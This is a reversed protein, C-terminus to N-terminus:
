RNVASEDFPVGDYVDQRLWLIVTQSAHPIGRTRRQLWWPLFDFGIMSQPTWSRSIVFSQGVYSGGLEPLRELQPLLVIRDTRADDPDTIFRTNEFDRLLWAVVGTESTLMTIPIEPFGMSERQAVDQLTERLLNVESDTAQVHWFETPNGANHVSLNWGSGIGTLVAFLLVGLAGARATIGQGWISAALFFGVLIFLVTIFLWILSIRFNLFPTELIRAMVQDLGGGPVTLFARGIVQLHIALMTLLGLMVAALIWKAWRDRRYQWWSPADEEDLLEYIGPLDDKELLEVAVWSALAALPMTLWLAHDPGGGAFIFVALISLVVWGILFREVHDIADRRILLIVAALAFVWIFPEYIISTALPFLAPTGPASETLGRITRGLLESVASLGAPYLMFGTSVIVVVGAAAFLGTQLPWAQLRNRIGALFESGPMDLRDPATLAEWYLAIAGAVLFIFGLVPGGPESLLVMGIFFMTAQIAASAQGKEWWRWLSWLGLVALLMTWVVPSDFRSTAILVPSFALLASMIFARIQGILGRFLIPSLSLLVGGFAVWIRAALESGGAMTFSINHLWFGLPSQPIIISGAVDPHIVRWSALAERAETETLPVSDLEAVRLILALGIVLAYAIVEMSIVLRPASDMSERETQEQIVAEM